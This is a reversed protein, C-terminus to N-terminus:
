SGSRAPTQLPPRPVVTRHFGQEAVPAYPFFPRAGCHACPVDPRPPRGLVDLQRAIAEYLQQAFRLAEPPFPTEGAPWTAARTMIIRAMHLYREIAQAAWRTRNSGAALPWLPPVADKIPPDDM